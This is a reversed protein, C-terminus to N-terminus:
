GVKMDMLYLDFGKAWFDKVVEVLQFGAKTYFEHVLQTTRVVIRKVEPYKKIARIRFQTLERGIGKGHFDPHIVDWSIRATKGQDFGLNFGGGGIVQDDQEVVYYHEAEQSLYQLYDTEETPDFYKPTNLRVLEVLLPIDQEVFARIM